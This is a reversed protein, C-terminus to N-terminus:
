EPCKYGDWWEQMKQTPFHGHLRKIVKLERCICEKLGESYRDLQNPTINLNAVAENFDTWCVEVRGRLTVLVSNPILGELMQGEELIQLSATIEDFQRLKSQIEPVNRRERWMQLVQLGVSLVGTIFQGLGFDMFYYKENNFKIDFLRKLIQQQVFPLYEEYFTAARVNTLRGELPPIVIHFEDKVIWHIPITFNNWDAIDTSQLKNEIFHHIFSKAVVGIAKVRITRSGPRNAKLYIIDGAKLLSVAEYIDPANYYDWGIVFNNNQFFDDKMEEDWMSGIGFIAM